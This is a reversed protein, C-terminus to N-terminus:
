NAISIRVHRKIYRFIFYIVVLTLIFGVIYWVPVIWFQVEKSTLTNGEGDYLTAVARYQGISFPGAEWSFGLDKISTPLVVQGTVPVKGALQGFMNSITIEGKPEFHVTGTNEFQLTFPIPGSQQFAPATFSLITGKELHSGPITILVLMGVQTGVKLSGVTGGAPTSKFLVVGFHGGPEANAPPEISFPIEVREGVKLTFAKQKLHIWDIVSTVGTTRGVFKISDAGANPLFDQLSVSVEVDDDGANSLLISSQLSDSPKIVEDIKVPQISLGSSAFVAAPYLLLGLLPALLLAVTRAYVSM